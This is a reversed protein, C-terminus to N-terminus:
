PASRHVVWVRRGTSGHVPVVQAGLSRAWDPLRTQMTLVRDYGPLNGAVADRFFSTGEALGQTINPRPGAAPLYRDAYGETIVLVDPKRTAVNGYADAIERVGPLVGRPRAGVRQVRYPADDSLDFRPLYVVLGYTEVVSGATLNALHAEVQRRADGWQSLQLEAGRAAGLLVLVAFGARVSGAIVRRQGAWRLLDRASLGAYISLWTGLPLMFRHECRAVVLTFTLISSLGALLPLGHLLGRRAHRAGLWALVVVPWPWFFEGQAAVLDIANQTLGALGPEYARWDQSNTGTLTRLRTVFGSPNFIAGSVVAYGAVAALAGGLLQKFHRVRGGSTQALAQPVVVVLALCPLVYAAYAQDKTAISAAALLGFVRYDRARGHEVVDMLRLLALATWMLYPGDLNSTRGYYAFSLNTAAFLAAYRGAQRDGLREAMRAVAVLTVCSALIAVGKAVISVSTMVPTSLVSGMVAPGSFDPAALLGWLLAPLSLLGVIVYHLLPYRHGSGPTLNHAFGGFLDRPAIGDNEWGIASPLDWAAGAMQTVGYAALLLRLM